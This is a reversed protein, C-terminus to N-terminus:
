LHFITVLPNDESVRLGVLHLGSPLHGHRPYARVTMSTTQHGYWPWVSTVESRSSASAIQALAQRMTRSSEFGLGSQYKLVPVDRTVEDEASTSVTAVLNVM